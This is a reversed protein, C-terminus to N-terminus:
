YSQASATLEKDEATMSLEVNMKRGGKTYLTRYHLADPPCSPCTDQESVTWGNAKLAADFRKSTDTVLDRPPAKGKDFWASVGRSSPAVDYRNASKLIPELEKYESPIKQGCGALALAIVVAVLM